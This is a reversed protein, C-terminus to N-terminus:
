GVREGFHSLSSREPLPRALVIDDFHRNGVQFQRDAIWSFGNKHYFAIARENGAHVGLLLRKAGRETAHGVARRLLEPGLGAGHFRAFSYIRKIEMDYGDPDSGPLATNGVMAYGIPAGTASEALWAAGGDAFFRRYADVAHADRCHLHISEGDLMTAFSELFTAAGVLSLREADGVGAERVTWPLPSRDLLLAM